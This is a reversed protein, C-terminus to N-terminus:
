GTWPTVQRERHCVQCMALYAAIPDYECHGDAYGAWCTCRFAAPPIASGETAQEPVPPSRLRRPAATTRSRNSRPPEPRVSDASCEAANMCPNSACEDVDSGCRGDLNAYGPACTCKFQVNQARDAICKGGAHQLSLAYQLACVQNIPLNTTDCTGGNKCPSSLCEDVDMGCRGGVGATLHAKEVRCQARYATDFASNMTYDCYGDTYGPRCSCRFYGYPV